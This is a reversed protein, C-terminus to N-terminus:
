TAPADPDLLPSFLRCGQRRFVDIMRRLTDPPLGLHEGLCVPCLTDTVFRGRYKRNLAAEDGTMTAGCRPCTPPGITITAEMPTRETPGTATGEQPSSVGGVAQLHTPDTTPRAAFPITARDSM